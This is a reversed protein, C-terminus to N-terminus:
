RFEVHAVQGHEVVLLSLTAGHRVVEIPANEATRFRWIPEGLQVGRGSGAAPLVVIETGDARLFLDRTGNRDVDHLFAALLRERSRLVAGPLTLRHVLAVPRRFRGGDTVPRGLFLNLQAELRGSSGAALTDIVDTRLSGIALDGVGDGDVDDFSPASTFGQLLLRDAASEFLGGEEGQRFVEVVSSVADGETRGSVLVVEARGDKELDVLQVDYSPDFLPIGREPVERLLTPAAAFTADDQQEWVAFRRGILAAVDLRGDANWDAIQPAPLRDWVEILYGEQREDGIDISGRLDDSRNRFRAESRERETVPQPPTRLRSGAFRVGGDGRRQVLAHYGGVEPVLLDDLGDHDLDAVGAQWSLAYGPNAPQWLFDIEAIPAYVPAPEDPSWHVSVARTPSFLVLEDGPRPHVDAVAFGVVDRVLRLDHDPASRFAPPENRRLHVMLHRMDDSSLSVSVILDPRGDGDYDGFTADRVYGGAYQVYAVAPEVQQAACAVALLLAVGPTATNM